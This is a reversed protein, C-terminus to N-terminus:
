VIINTYQCAVLDYFFDHPAFAMYKYLVCIFICINAFFKCKFKDVMQKNYMESQPHLWIDLM